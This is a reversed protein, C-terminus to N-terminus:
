HYAMSKYGLTIGMPKYTKLGKSRDNSVAPNRGLNYVFVFRAELYPENFEVPLRPFISTTLAGWAARDLAEDGSRGELVMGGDMLRGNPLIKVCIVVEGSKSVPADAEKPILPIWSSNIIQRIHRLYPNFEVGHTDSLIGEVSPFDKPLTGCHTGPTSSAPATQAPGFLPSVLVFCAFIAVPIHV